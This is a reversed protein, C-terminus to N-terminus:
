KKTLEEIPYIFHTIESLGLLKKVLEEKDYPYTIVIRGVRPTYRTEFDHPFEGEYQSMDPLTDDNPNDFFGQQIVNSRSM